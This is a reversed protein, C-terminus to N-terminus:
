KEHYARAPTHSLSLSMRVDAHRWGTPRNVNGTCNGKGALLKVGSMKQTKQKVVM